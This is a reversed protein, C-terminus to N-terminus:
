NNSLDITVFSSDLINCDNKSFEEILKKNANDKNMKLRKIMLEESKKEEETLNNENFRLYLLRYTLDDLCPVFEKILELPYFDNGTLLVADESKTIFEAM